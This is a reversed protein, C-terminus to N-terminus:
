PKLVEFKRHLVGEQTKLTIIYLGNDLQNVGIQANRAVMKGTKYVMQGMINFIQIEEFTKGGNLHVNLFDGTPNPWVKLLDNNLPVQPHDFRITIKVKEIEAGFTQGNDGMMTSFGGGVEVQIQDGGLRIGTLDDVIILNVTGIEGAGSAPRGTTRTFGSELLGEMNNRNMFLIPSNYSLWSQHSFRANVSSPVFLEPSYQFPFTLGYVNLAPQNATGLQMKLEVVDGPGAFINGTLNITYPSQSINSVNIGHTKGYFQSIAATDLASVFGNGDADLHKLDHPFAVFPNEWNSSYKGFWNGPANDSRPIGAEGMYLGIPLLDEMNVIGDLNTDGAWICDSFCLPSDGTGIDLIQVKIKVTRMFTCSGSTNSSICFAVEFEDNGSPISNQPIYVVMNYGSIPQGLLTTDVAGPLLLIQGLDPQDTVFFQFNPVPVNNGIILPTAKPTYMQYTAAAPEFNSVVIRATATELNSAGFPRRSSYKFFDTGTFGPNPVYTVLGNSPGTVLTGNAPQQVVNFMLAATGFADNQLVNFEVPVGPTTFAQDDKAFQNFQTNLVTIVARIQRNGDSFLIQDLGTFNNGPTYEPLELGTSQYTGNNPGSVRQFGPPILLSQATNKHTFVRLTDLSPTNPSSVHVSVNGNDCNNDDDCVIYNLLAIGTFGPSPSFLVESEGPTFTAVGNNVSSISSLVLVNRSSFDNNLVNISVPVGVQTAVNDQRALVKAPVVTIYVDIYQFCQSVIPCTWRSIRIFDQGIFGNQPTYTLKYNPSSGNLGLTHTGHSPPTVMGPPMPSSTLNYEAVTGEYTELLISTQGAALLPLAAVLLLFLLKQLFLNM